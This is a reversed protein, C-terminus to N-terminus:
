GLGRQRMLEGPDFDVEVQVIQNGEIWYRNTLAVDVRRSGDGTV